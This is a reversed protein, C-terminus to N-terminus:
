EVFGSLFAAREEETLDSIALDAPDALGTTRQDAQLEAFTKVRWFAEGNLALQRSDLLARVEVSTAQSTKPDYRVAGEFGVRSRLTEQIDDALDGSFAVVVVANDALRLKATNQEFDAEFLVGILTEDKERAALSGVRQMRRRANVDLTARRQVQDDGARVQDSLVLSVNRDGIGIEAAVQAVAAALEPDVESAQGAIADLLRDFALSSLDAVAIPLEDDSPASDPLGLLGVVSGSEVGVFRLRAASEIAHAHRGTGRWRKGLVIYAARAIARELGLILRAVDAAQVRGLDADPGELQARIIRVRILSGCRACM